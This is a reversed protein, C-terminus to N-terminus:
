YGGDPTEMAKHLAYGGLLGAGVGKLLRPANSQLARDLLYRKRVHAPAMFRVPKGRGSIDSVAEWLQKPISGKAAMSEAVQSAPIKQALERYMKTSSSPAVAHAGLGGLLGGLATPTVPSELDNATKVKLQKLVQLRNRLAGKHGKGSELAKNQMAIAEELPRLKVDKIHDAPETLPLKKGKVLDAVVSFTRSGKYKSLRDDKGSNKWGRRTLLSEKYVPVAVRKANKLKRGAEELFERKAAQLVTEGSDVGGGFLGVSGDPYKGSYLLGKDNLAYVDVRNRYPKKKM